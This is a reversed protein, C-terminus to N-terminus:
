LGSGELTDGSAAQEWDPDSGARWRRVFPSRGGRGRLRIGQRRLLARITEAPQGSLLEIHRLSLGCEVYFEAAAEPGIALAAPFRRSIPGGPPVRELGHRVLVRHVLPDAYLADVLRIEAPGCRPPPGGLRVPLGLDHAARLVVRGPVGLTSGTDAASMGARVYLDALADAPVTQRDERNCRGRSRMTVGDARLRDRVTREPIGTLESIQASTLRWRLYLVAIVAADSGPRRRRGAGRPKVPVGMQRLVRGVRQRSIGVIAAIRYTSLRSCEYLHSVREALRADPLDARDSDDPFASVRGGHPCCGEDHSPCM